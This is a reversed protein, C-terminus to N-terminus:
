GAAKSEINATVIPAISITPPFGIPSYMITKPAIRPANIVWLNSQTQNTLVSYSLDLLGAEGSTKKQPFFDLLWSSSLPYGRYILSLLVIMFSYRSDSLVPSVILVVLDGDNSSAIM